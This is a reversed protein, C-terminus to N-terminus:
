KIWNRDIVSSKYIVSLMGDTYVQVLVSYNSYIKLQYPYDPDEAYISVCTSAEMQEFAKNTSHSARNKRWEEEKGRGSGSVNKNKRREFTCVANTSNLFRDRVCSMLLFCKIGPMVHANIIYFPFLCFPRVQVFSFQSKNSRAFNYVIKMNQAVKRHFELLDNKKKNRKRKRFNMDIRKRIKGTVTPTKLNRKIWIKLFRRLKNWM